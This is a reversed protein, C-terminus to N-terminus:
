SMGTSKIQHGNTTLVRPNSTTPINRKKKRSNLYIKTYRVYKQAMRYIMRFYFIFANKKVLPRRDPIVIVYNLYYFSNFPVNDGNTPIGRRVVFLCFRKISITRLVIKKSNSFIHEKKVYLFVYPIYWPWYEISLRFIPVTQIKM